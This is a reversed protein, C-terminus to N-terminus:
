AAMFVLKGPHGEMNGQPNRKKKRLNYENVPVSLTILRNYEEKREVPASFM